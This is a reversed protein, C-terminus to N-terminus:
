RSLPTSCAWAAETQQQPWPPCPHAIDPFQQTHGQAGSNMDLGHELLSGSLRVRNQLSAFSFCSNSFSDFKGISHRLKEGQVFLARSASAVAPSAADSGALCGCYLSHAHGSQMNAHTRFLLLPCLSLWYCDFVCSRDSTCHFCSVCQNETDCRNNADFYWRESWVQADTTVCM